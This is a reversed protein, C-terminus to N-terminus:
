DEDSIDKEIPNIREDLYEMHNDTNSIKKYIDDFTELLWYFFFMVLCWFAFNFTLLKKLNM